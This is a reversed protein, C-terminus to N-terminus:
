TRAATLQALLFRGRRALEANGTASLSNVRASLAAVRSQLAALDATAALAKGEAQLEAPGYYADIYGSEKEGIALQLVVYDRAAADWGATPAVPVTACSALLPLAALTLCRIIM